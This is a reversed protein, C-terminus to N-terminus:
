IIKPNDCWYSRREECLTTCATAFAFNFFVFACCNWIWMKCLYMCYLSSVLNSTHCLLQYVSSRTFQVPIVNISLENKSTLCADLQINVIADILLRKDWVLGTCLEFVGGWFFPLAHETHSCLYRRFHLFKSAGNEGKKGTSVHLPTIKSLAIIGIHRINRAIETETYKCWCWRFLRHMGFYLCDSLLM